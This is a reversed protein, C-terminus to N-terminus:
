LSPVTRNKKEIEIGSLVTKGAEPAQPYHALRVFNFGMSKMKEFDKRQEGDTM